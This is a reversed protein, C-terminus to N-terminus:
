IDIEQYLKLTYTQKQINMIKSFFRIRKGFGSLIDLMVRNIIQGTCIVFIWILFIFPDYFIINLIDVGMECFIYFYTQFDEYFKTRCSQM